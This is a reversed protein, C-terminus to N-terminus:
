KVMVKAVVNDVVVIYVGSQMKRNVVNSDATFRSIFVGDIAYVYVDKCQANYICIGGDNSFIHINGDGVLNSIGGFNSNHGGTSTLVYENAEADSALANTIVIDGCNTQEPKITISLIAEDNDAFTTNALDFLAIRITRDDIRHSMLSHYAEARNGAEVAVLEMGEPVTIDAQMAVYDITNDLAVDVKATNGVECSYDDIVLNDLDMPIAARSMKAVNAAVSPVPQNLVEAVTGSADSLTIKNDANVDAAEFNFVEVENGVAYNATNVADTITVQDNDNSDGKTPPIITLAYTDFEGSGDAATATIVVDGALLATVVGAEDICAIADNSSTWVVDSNTATAPAVTASLEFTRGKKLTTVDGNITITEVLTPVVVVHCIAKVGSGDAAVATVDTEGVAVATVLGTNDVTAIGEDGVKWIVGKDTADDNGVTATLQSTETAKFNIESKDLTISSVMVNENLTRIDLWTEWTPSYQYYDISAEPVFLTGNQPVLEPFNVLGEPPFEAYSKVYKIGTCGNFSDEGLSTTKDSLSVWQLGTCNQFAQKGVSSIGSSIAINPLSICGSFSEVGLGYLSEPLVVGALATCGKFAAPGIIMLKTGLDLNKLSTCNSFSNDAISTMSEPFVINDLSTCESFGYDAVQSLKQSLQVSKLSSCGRFGWLGVSEINDPLTVEELGTCYSFMYKDIVSVNEGINLNKLTTISYFPSRTSVETNYSLWRDLNLTEVPCDRFLGYNTQSAGYGIELLEAGGEFTVTALSKCNRFMKTDMKTVVPPIVIAELSDCDAFLGEKLWPCSTSLQASKMAVNEAFAYIGMETVANPIVIGKLSSMTRFASNGISKLSEPLILEQCNNVCYLLYDKCYTVTGAQSFTVDTLFNQNYFPSYGYQTPNDTPTTDYKINRGIYLSQLQSNHFMPLNSSYSGSDNIAGYGMTLDGTGDEFRLKTLAWDGAFAYNGITWVKGPFSLETLLPCKSFTYNGIRELTSPFTM